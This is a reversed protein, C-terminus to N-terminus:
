SDLQEVLQAICGAAAGPKYCLGKPNDLRCERRDSGATAISSNARRAAPAPPTARPEPGPHGRLRPECSSAAMPAMAPAAAAHPAGRSPLPSGATGPARAAEAMEEEPEALAEAFAPQPVRLEVHSLVSTVQERLHVLMARSCSSRRASTNTSRTASACLRASQHGPASPRAVPSPGELDPRPAAAAPEERGHADHRRRLQGGEGGDQPRGRRHHAGRDRRRRHRGGQGMRRGAPRAGLPAPVRRAAGAVDWQEPLANDPIAAAVMADITENRMDAITAAVDRANMIERRQEYVVKRQDNMVDDYKLLQKRIDYNRAEVKQQAKALAKNVWPHIIAEGEKLGLRQLM